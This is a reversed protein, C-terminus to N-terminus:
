LGKHNSNEIILNVIMKIILLISEVIYIQTSNSIEKTGFYREVSICWITFINVIM